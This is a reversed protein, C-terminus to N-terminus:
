FKGNESYTDDESHRINGKFKFRGFITRFPPLKTDDYKIRYM